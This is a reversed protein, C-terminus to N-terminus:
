GGSLLPFLAIRDGDKVETAPGLPYQRWGKGNLTAMVQPDATSIGYTEELWRAIDQLAAGQPFSAEEEDRGAKEKLAVLYKVLVRIKAGSPSCQEDAM